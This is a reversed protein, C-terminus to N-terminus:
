RKGEKGLETLLWAVRVVTRQALELERQLEALLSAARENKV